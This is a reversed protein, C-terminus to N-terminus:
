CHLRDLVQGLTSRVSSVDARPDALLLVFGLSTGGVFITGDDGSFLATKFKGRGLHEAGLELERGLTAGLAALPELPSGAPLDATIVLGDPTVMLSGWVHELRSLAGVAEKIEHSRSSAQPLEASRDGISDHEIPSARETM